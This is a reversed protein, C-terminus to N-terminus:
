VARVVARGEGVGSGGPIRFFSSVRQIILVSAFLLAVPPRARNAPAIEQFGEVVLGAIGAGRREDDQSGTGKKSTMRFATFFGRMQGEEAGEV